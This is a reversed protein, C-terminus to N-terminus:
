KQYDPFNPIRIVRDFTDTEGRDYYRSGGEFILRTGADGGGGKGIDVVLMPQKNVIIYDNKRIDELDVDQLFASADFVRIVETALLPVDEHDDLRVRMAGNGAAPFINLIPREHPGTRESWFYWSGDAYKVSNSGELLDAAREPLHEEVGERKGSSLDPELPLDLQPGFQKQDELGMHGWYLGEKDLNSVWDALLLFVAM